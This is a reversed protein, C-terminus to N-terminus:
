QTKKRAVWLGVTSGLLLVSCVSFVSGFGSDGTLLLSIVVFVNLPIRLVGYVQARVADDILKGKLYGMCPWYMGVAAEFLCFIWFTSQETRPSASLFFCASSTALITPLLSSFSILGRSTIINFVLSSALTAAMFSAFIVGYPLSSASSSISQLAPAWFFVFLYMSGEFITSALALSLISPRFLTAWLKNEQKKDDDKPAATAPKSGTEGFNEEWTNFILVGAVVLIAASVWFPAKRTGAAGVLWESGVGSLIAVISNLTSMLGFTNSLETELGQKKLDTVIWSEFVSFLLSTGLGGLIRGLFLLVVSGSITTLICSAAYVACFTLCATRRGRRDALAGIFTGSAAGSLFGTTFLSSILAPSVSHEERYLSYLFPGQLWDSAMVLTYVVLFPLAPNKKSKKDNADQTAAEGTKKLSDAQQQSRTNHFLGGCLALLATLNLSYIDMM